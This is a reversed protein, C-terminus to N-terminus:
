LGMLDKPHPSGHVRIYEARAQERYQIVDADIGRVISLWEDSVANWRQGRAKKVFASKTIKEAHKLNLRDLIYNARKGYFVLRWAREHFYLRGGFVRRLSTLLRYKNITIYLVSDAMRGNKYLRVGGEADVLGALYELLLPNEIARPVNPPLGPGKQLAEEFSSELYTAFQFRYYLHLHDFSAVRYINGYNQFLRQYLVEMSPHTTTTSVEILRGSKRIHCDEIFGCLYAGELADGSFPYKPYKTSAKISAERGDRLEVKLMMLHRRVTSSSVGFKRAIAEMSSGSEYVRVWERDRSSEMFISASNENLCVCVPDAAM